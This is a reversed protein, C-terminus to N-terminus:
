RSYTKPELAFALNEGTLRTWYLRTHKRSGLFGNECMEVRGRILWACTGCITTEFTAANASIPTTTRSTNSDSAYLLKRKHWLEGAPFLREQSNLDQGRKYMVPRQRRKRCLKKVEHEFAKQSTHNLVCAIPGVTETLDAFLCMARSLVFSFAADQFNAGQPEGCNTPHKTM